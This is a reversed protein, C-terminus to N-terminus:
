RRSRKQSGARRVKKVVRKAPKAQPKIKRKVASETKVAPQSPVPAPPVAATAPLPGAAAPAAPLSGLTILGGMGLFIALWTVVIGLVPIFGLGALIAYGLLFVPVPHRPAYNKFIIGGLSYGAGLHALIFALGYLILLLIGLPIGLLTLMLLLSLLPVGISLLLGWGLNPWFKSGIAAAYRGAPAPLVAVLFTGLLLLTLALSIKSLFDSTFKEWVGRRPNKVGFEKSSLRTISGVQAGPAIQAPADAYYKLTGSVRASGGLWLSRCYVSVDGDIVGDLRVEEGFLYTRGHVTGSMWLYQAGAALGELVVAKPEIKLTQAFLVAGQGVQSSIWLKMGLARLDGGVTGAFEGHQAAAMLDQDVIGDFNFHSGAVLADRRIRGNIQVDQGVAYWSDAIVQDAPLNLQEEAAFSLAWVPGTLFTLALALLGPVLFVPSRRASLFFM